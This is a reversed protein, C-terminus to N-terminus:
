NSKYKCFCNTKEVNGTYELPPIISGQCPFTIDYRSCRTINIKRIITSCNGYPQFCVSYGDFECTGYTLYKFDPNRLDTNLGIAVCDSIGSPCVQNCSLGSASNEMIFDAIPIPTPTPTRTPLPTPSSTPTPNPTFNPTPTPTLVFSPTPTSSQPNQSQTPTITIIIRSIFRNAYYKGGNELEAELNYNTCPNEALGTCSEPLAQYFYSKKTKPDNPLNGIPSPVLEDLKKPYSSNNSYFVELAGKINEIDVKRKADRSQKNIQSYYLFTALMLLSIITVIVLLEILNFGKKFIKKALQKKEKKNKKIM